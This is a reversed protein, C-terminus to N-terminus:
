SSVDCRHHCAHAGRCRATRGRNTACHADVIQEEISEREQEIQVSEVIEEVTPPFPIGAIQEEIREPLREQPVEKNAINRTTEEAVIQEPDVTRQQLREQPLSQVVDVTDDVIQLVHIDGIQEESREFHFLPAAVKSTSVEGSTTSSKPNVLSCFDRNVQPSAPAIYKIVPTSDICAPAAYTDDPTVSVHEIVPAPPCTFRAPTENEIVHAPTVFEIATAPASFSATAAYTAAAPVPAFNTTQTAAATTSTRQTKM